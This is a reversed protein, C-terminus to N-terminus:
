LKFYGNFHPWCRYTSELSFGDILKGNIEYFQFSLIQCRFNICKAPRTTKAMGCSYCPLVFSLDCLFLLRFICFCILDSVIGWVYKRIYKKNEIEIPLLLEFHTKVRYYTQHLNSTTHRTETFRRHLHWERDRGPVGIVPLKYSTSFYM